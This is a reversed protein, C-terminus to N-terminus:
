EHIDENILTHWFCLCFLLHGSLHMLHAWLGQLFTSWALSEVSIQLHMRLGSSIDMLFGFRGTGSMLIGTASADSWSLFLFTKSWVLLWRVIGFVLVLHHYNGNWLSIWSCSCRGCLCNMMLIVLLENSLLLINRMSWTSLHILIM